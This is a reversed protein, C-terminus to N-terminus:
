EIVSTAPLDFHYVAGNVYSQGELPANVILYNDGITCSKGYEPTQVQYTQTLTWAGGNNQYLYAHGSSGVILSNGDPSLSLSSGFNSASAPAAIEATATWTGSILNFVGVKGVAASVLTNENMTLNTGIMAQDRNGTLQQVREWSQDAAQKYLFIAGMSERKLAFGPAGVAMWGQTMAVSQGFGANPDFQEPLISEVWTEGERTYLFTRGGNQEYGPAGILMQNGFLAVSAGFKGNAEPTAPQILQTAKWDHTKGTFMEVAGANALVGNAGQCAAVALWEGKLVAAAGFGKTEAQGALANVGAIHALEVQQGGAHAYIYVTRTYKSTVAFQDLDATVAAGFGEGQTTKQPTIRTAQQGFGPSIFGLVLAPILLTLLRSTKM